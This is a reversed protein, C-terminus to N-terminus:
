QKQQGEKIGSTALNRGLNMDVTQLVERLLEPLAPVRSFDRLESQRLIEIKDEKRFTRKMVSLTMLQGKQGKLM